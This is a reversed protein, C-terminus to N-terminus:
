ARASAVPIAFPSAFPAMRGTGTAFARASTAGSSSVDALVSPRNAVAVRRRKSETINKVDATMLAASTRFTEGSTVRAPGSEPQVISRTDVARPKFQRRTVPPAHNTKISRLIQKFTPDDATAYVRTSLSSATTRSFVSDRGSASRASFPTKSGHSRASTYPNNQGVIGSLDLTPVKGELTTPSIAVDVEGGVMDDTEDGGNRAILSLKRLTSLADSVQVYGDGNHDCLLALREADQRHLRYGSVPKIAETFYRQLDERKVFGHQGKDLKLFVERM